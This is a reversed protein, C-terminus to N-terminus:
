NLIPSVMGDVKFSRFSVVIGRLRMFRCVSAPSSPSVM